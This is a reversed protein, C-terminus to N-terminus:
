VECEEGIDQVVPHEVAGLHGGHRGGGDVPGVAGGVDGKVVLLGGSEGNGKRAGNCFTLRVDLTGHLDAGRGSGIDHDVKGGAVGGRKLDGGGHGHEGPLRRRVEGGGRGGIGQQVSGLVQVEGGVHLIPGIADRRDGHEVVLAGTKRHNKGGLDVLAGTGDGIAALDVGATEQQGIKRDREGGASRRPQRNRGGYGDEGALTIGVKIEADRVVTDRVSVMRVGNGGGCGTEGLARSGHHNEVVVGIMEGEGGDGARLGGPSGEGHGDSRAVRAPRCHGSKGVGDCESGVGSRRGNGHSGGCGAGEEGPLPGTREGYRGVAGAHHDGGRVAFAVGAGAIREEHRPGGNEYRRGIAHIHDLIVRAPNEVDGVLVADE